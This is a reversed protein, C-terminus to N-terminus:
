RGILPRYSLRRGSTQGLLRQVRQADTLKRTSYRFDFEGLYRNLHERSVHHHTGDVSRKLQSFFSEVHNTTVKGRAYEEERHNVTEHAIFEKGIQTYGKWEDTHLVSDFTSVQKRIEAALTAGTVNPVVKSRIEGTTTNLISLVPTKNDMMRDASWKRRAFEPVDAPPKQSIKGGVWTEDIEVTGVLAHPARDAMAERIRHAMFWASKPTLEYKRELERAAIGNKSACMEVVAFLWTRVPIKSGHFISNTLVSFQKRCAACKWVRRDTVSGTRTKRGDKAKANLFYPARDTGCHPCVPGDPWRLEELVKYATAEDPIRAALGPISLNPTKAMGGLYSLGM